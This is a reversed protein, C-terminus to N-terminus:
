TPAPRIPAARAQRAILLEAVGLNLAWAGILILDLARGEVKGLLLFVPLLLATQTGAGMAIAYARLMWARHVAFDRARAAALGLAAAALFAASMINQAGDYLHSEPKADPSANMWLGSLAAGAGLALLARGTWRHLRPAKRRLNGSFQALGLILLASGGTVHLAVALPYSARRALDAGTTVGNLSGTALSQLIALGILAPPLALLFLGTVPLAGLIRSLRPRPPSLPDITM